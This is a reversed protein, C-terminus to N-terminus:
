MYINVLNIIVQSKLLLSKDVSYNVACLGLNLHEQLQEAMRNKEMREVLKPIVSMLTIEFYKM